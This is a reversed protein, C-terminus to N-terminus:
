SRTTRSALSRNKQHINFVSLLSLSLALRHPLTTLVKSSHEKINTFLQVVAGLGGRGWRGEM